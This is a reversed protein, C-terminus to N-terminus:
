AHAAREQHRDRETQSEKSIASPPSRAPPRAGAAAVHHLHLGARPQAPFRRAGGLRRCLRGDIGFAKALTGQIVTPRHMVGDREAIGGGRPGYLGVAHVEDLYTMAGFRDAVDCLEGIPAIDGDM